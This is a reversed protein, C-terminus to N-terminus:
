LIHFARAYFLGAHGCFHMSWIGGGMCLAAAALWAARLLNTGAEKVRQAIDLATYSAAVAILISLPFLVWDHSGAM